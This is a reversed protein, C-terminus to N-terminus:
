HADHGGTDPGPAKVDMGPMNGMGGMVTGLNSEADVLFTASAVVVEGAHVGRLIEVREDTAAGLAVDRPTFRGDPDRVFVLNREGTALVASRPVSVVPGGASQFRITAYMGPKLRLGPNPLEVRIRATRTEPDLAPSVYTIRGRRVEGPMSPFEAAVSLGLRVASLDREFVEGELWVQSLDAVKYLPEGPMVRQGPLVAKEVVVGNVPAVFTLTRRVRGETEIGRVQDEPVDWFLLRRRAADGLEAAGSQASATGEGVDSRLRRAVLLEEQASVLMPSYVAMLPDGRRVAQGTYDVFLREVWGEVKLAVTAVRTEDYNVQAVTRVERALPGLTATAFTIGIRQQEDPSLMVSRLSDATAAVGHEHEAPGASEPTRTLLYAVAATALLMAVAAAARWARQRPSRAPRGFPSDTM